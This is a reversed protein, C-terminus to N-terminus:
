PTIKSMLESEIREPASHGDEVMGKLLKIYGRVREYGQTRTREISAWNKTLIFDNYAAIIEPFIIKRYGGLLACYFGLSGAKRQEIVHALLGTRCTDALIDKLGRVFLEARSYPLNVLLEKWWTGLLKRQSAEGLEHYICSTLEDRAIDSIRKEMDGPNVRDLTHKLIGYESFARSLANQRNRAKIEELRDWLFFKMTEHRAIITNGQLMAPSSSLDRAIEREVIFIRYRSMMTKDSVQALLFTPKLMNGYGAGYLLGRKLVVANIGKVDFPHFKKGNIRITQFPLSSLTEWLEEREGIWHAIKGPVVKEWLKLGHEIKFLDRLRLLLGCPSYFGWYRADSINCNHKIQSALSDIDIM